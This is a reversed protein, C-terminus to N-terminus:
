VGFVIEILPLTFNPSPTPTPHPPLLHALSRGAHMIRLPPPPTPLSVHSAMLKGCVVSRRGVSRALSGMSFRPRTPFPSRVLPPSRPALSHQSYYCSSPSSFFLICIGPTRMDGQRRQQGCPPYIPLLSTSLTPFQAWVEVRM